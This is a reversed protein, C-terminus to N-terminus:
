ESRSERLIALAFDAMDEASNRTEPSTGSIAMYADGITKVKEVSHVSEIEELRCFVESLLEVLHKPAVREALSTFNVIDCFLVTVEGFVNAIAKGESQARTLAEISVYSPMQSKFAEREEEMQLEDAYVTRLLRERWYAVCLIIVFISHVHGLDLLRVNLPLDAVWFILAAHLAQTWAGVLLTGITTLPLLAIFATVLMYNITANGTSFRFDTEADYLVLTVFVCSSAVVTFLRGQVVWLNNPGFSEEDERLM